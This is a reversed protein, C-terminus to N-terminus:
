GVTILKREKKKTPVQTLYKGRDILEFYRNVNRFILYVPNVTYVKVYEKIMVYGNYCIYKYLKEDIKINNPDFTEISIIDNFIYYIRKKYRYRQNKQEKKYYM